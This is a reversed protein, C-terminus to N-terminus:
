KLKRPSRVVAFLEIRLLLGCLHKTEDFDAKHHEIDYQIYKHDDKHNHPEGVVCSRYSAFLASFSCELSSVSM